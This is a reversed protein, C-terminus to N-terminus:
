RRELHAILRDYVAVMKPGAGDRLHRFVRVMRPFSEVRASLYDSKPWASERYGTARRGLWRDVFRRFATGVTGNGVGLVGKCLGYVEALKGHRWGYALERFRDDGAGWSEGDHYEPTGFDLPGGEAAALAGDPFIGADELAGLLVSTPVPEGVLVSLALQKETPLPPLHDFMRNDPDCFTALTMSRAGTEWGSKGWLPHGAAMASWRVINELCRRLESTM